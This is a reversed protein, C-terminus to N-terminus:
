SFKVLLSKYSKKLSPRWDAHSIYGNKLTEKLATYVRELVSDWDGLSRQRFLRMTEYWPTDEFERMWRWDCDYPLLTWIPVGIAGAMHVTSNDVSIVLDLASIQAAFNDLDKLADADRWSHIQLGQRQRIEQLETSCDGYQLNIFHVGPISFLISFSKLPISRTAIIFPETGGVWSIGIKLGDGLESFRERWINVKLRDPDLYSKRSPFSQLNPRLIKPLSGIAIKMDISSIDFPYPEGENIPNLVRIKEFSRAFLPALREECEVFCFDAESIIDPLCSAFMIQDGVGQEAYVLLTRGRLSSGEWVPKALYHLQSVFISKGWKWEYEEWGLSFNGSALLLFAKSFHAGTDGPDLEIAKQYSALAEKYYGKNQLVVGLNNHADVFYPNIQLAKKYHYVAEDLLVKDRFALGLNNWVESLNQNIQLAERFCAFAQDASGKERYVCGLMNYTHANDPNQHLAKELCSIAEDFQRREYLIFGLGANAEGNDSDIQLAKQFCDFAEDFNRKELSIQGLGNYFVVDGPNLGIAKAYHYAAEDFRKQIKFVDAIYQHAEVMAPNIELAKQLANIANDPSGKAVYANGLSLYTVATPPDLSLSRTLYQIALDYNELQSYVIGLLKVAETNDPKVKLIEKLLFVTQQLDGTQYYTLALQLIEKIDM